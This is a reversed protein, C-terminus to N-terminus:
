ADVEHRGTVGSEGGLPGPVPLARHAPGHHAGVQRGARGAAVRVLDPRDLGTRDMEVERRGGVLGAVHDVRGLRVHPERDPGGSGRRVESSRRCRGAAGRGRHVGAGAHGGRQPAGAAPADQGVRDTGRVLVLRGGARGATLAAHGAAPEVDVVRAGSARRDVFRHLHPVVVAERGVVEEDDADDAEVPTVAEAERAVVPDAVRRLLHVDLVEGLVRPPSHPVRGGAVLRVHERGLGDVHAVGAVVLVAVPLRRVGGQHRAQVGEVLDAVQPPEHGAARLVAEVAVVGRAAHHEDVPRARRGVPRVVQVVAVLDTEEGVRRGRLVRDHVLSAVRQHVVHVLVVHWRAVARGM